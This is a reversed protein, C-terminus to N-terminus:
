SLMLVMGVGTVEGKLLLNGKPITVHSTLWENHPDRFPASVCYFFGTAM